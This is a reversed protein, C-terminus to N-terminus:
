GVVKGLIAQIVPSVNALTLGLLALLLVGVGRMVM